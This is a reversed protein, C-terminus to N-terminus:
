GTSMVDFCIFLTHRVLVHIFHCDQFVVIFRHKDKIFMYIENISLFLHMSNVVHSKEHLLNVGGM